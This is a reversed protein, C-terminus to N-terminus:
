HKRSENRKSEAAVSILWETTRRHYSRCAPFTTSNYIHRVACCWVDEGLKDTESPPPITGPDASARRRGPQAVPYREIERVVVEYMVHIDHINTVQAAAAKLALGVLADAHEDPNGHVGAGGRVARALTTLSDAVHAEDAEVGIIGGVVADTAEAVCMVMRLQSRLHRSTCELIETTYGAVAVLANTINSNEPTWTVQTSLVSAALPSCEVRCVREYLVPLDAPDATMYTLRDTRNVLLHRHLTNLRPISVTKGLGLSVVEFGRSLSESVDLVILALRVAEKIDVLLAARPAAPLDSISPPKKRSQGDADRLADGLQAVCQVRDSSPVDIHEMFFGSTSMALAAGLRLCRRFVTAKQDLDVGHNLTHTLVSYGLSPLKKPQAPGCDTYVSVVFLAAARWPGDVHGVRCTCTTGSGLDTIGLKTIEGPMSHDASVEWLSSRERADTGSQVGTGQRWTPGDTNDRTLQACSGQNSPDAQAIRGRWELRFPQREDSQSSFVKGTSKRFGVIAGQTPHVAMVQLDLSHQPKWERPSRHLRDVHNPHDTDEAENGTDIGVGNVATSLCVICALTALNFTM